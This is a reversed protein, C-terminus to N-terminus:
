VIDGDNNSDSMTSIWIIGFFDSIGLDLFHLSIISKSSYNSKDGNEMHFFTVPDSKRHKSILKFM